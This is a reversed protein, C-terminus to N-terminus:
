GVLWRLTVGSAVDIECQLFLYKPPKTPAFLTSQPAVFYTPQPSPTGWCALPPDSFVAWKQCRPQFSERSTSNQHLPTFWLVSYFYPKPVQHMKKQHTAEIAESFKHTLTGLIITRFDQLHPNDLFKNASPLMFSYKGMFYPILSIRSFRGPKTLLFLILNEHKTKKKPPSTPMTSLCFSFFPFSPSSSFFLIYSFYLESSPCAPVITVFVFHAYM